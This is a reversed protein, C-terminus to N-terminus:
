VTPIPLSDESSAFNPQRNADTNIRTWVFRTCFGSGKIFRDIHVIM